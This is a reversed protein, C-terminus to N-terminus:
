RSLPHAASPQPLLATAHRLQAALDARDPVKTEHNGCGGQDHGPQDPDHQNPGRSVLVRTV